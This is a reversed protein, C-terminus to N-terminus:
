DMEGIEKQAWGNVTFLLWKWLHIAIKQWKWDKEAMYWGNGTMKLWKWSNWGNVAKVAM